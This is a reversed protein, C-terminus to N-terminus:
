YGCCVVYVSTTSSNDSSWVNVIHPDTSDQVWYFIETPVTGAAPRRQVDVSLFKTMHTHVAVVTQGTLASVKFTQVLAGNMRADHGYQTVAM